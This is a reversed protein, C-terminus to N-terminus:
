VHQPQNAGLTNHKVVAQLLVLCYAIDVIVFQVNTTLM